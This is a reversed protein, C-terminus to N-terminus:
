CGAARRSNRADWWTFFAAVAFLLSAFIGLTHIVMEFSEHRHQLAFRYGVAVLVLFPVAAFRERALLNNVLVGALTLPLMCWAFVPVLPAVKLFSQDYVLRLPLEPFLTCGLAAAGGLLATAGVAQLLVSSKEARAASQVIKPFMVATLPATFFYLARGIMGAAGYYGTEDKPFFRQVALMDQTLMYTVAGFGLTLPLAKRLFSGWDFREAPGHWLARSQWVAIVMAAMMGILAGTMGGAAAGGLVLVIITVASLRVLGNLMSSWGLWLFNQQGQLVGVLIPSWLSALGLFLTVWLAAPNAIKYDALLSSQFILALAVIVLWFLFTGILLSRMAGKLWARRGDNVAAVTMQAFTLQLGAAPIAMQNLMQLLATFVGYEAKPMKSAVIHVAYMLAGSVTAAIVMWGSQRFFAFRGLPPSTPPVAPDTSVSLTSM